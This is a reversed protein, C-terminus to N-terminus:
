WALQAAVVAGGRVPAFSVQLRQHELAEIQEEKSSIQSTLSVARVIRVILWVTSLTAIAVGGIQLTPRLWSPNASVANGLVFLGVGAAICIAPFVYGIGSRQEQLAEVEERLAKITAERELAPPAAPAQALLWGQHRPVDAHSVLASVVLAAALM